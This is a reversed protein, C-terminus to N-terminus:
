TCHHSGKGKNELLHKSLVKIYVMVMAKWMRKLNDNILLRVKSVKCPTGNIKIVQFVQNLMSNFLNWIFFLPLCQTMYLIHLMKTLWQILNISFGLPYQTGPHCCGKFIHPLIILSQQLSDGAYYHHPITYWSVSKWQLFKYIDLVIVIICLLNPLIMKPLRIMFTNRMPVVLLEEDWLHWYLSTLDTVIVTYRFRDGM